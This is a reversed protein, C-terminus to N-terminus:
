AVQFLAEGRELVRRWGQARGPVKQGFGAHIDLFRDVRQAAIFVAKFRIRFGQRFGICAQGGEVIGRAFMPYLDVVQGWEM